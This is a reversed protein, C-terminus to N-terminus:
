APPHQRRHIHFCREHGKLYEQRIRTTRCPSCIGLPFYRRGAPTAPFSSLLVNTRLRLLPPKGAVLEYFIPERATPSLRFLCCSPVSPGASPHLFHIFWSYCDIHFVYLQGQGHCYIISLTWALEYKCHLAPLCCGIVTFESSLSIGKKRLCERSMCSPHPTVNCFPSGVM